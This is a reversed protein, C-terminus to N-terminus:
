LFFDWLEKLLSRLYERLKRLIGRHGFISAPTFTSKPAKALAKASVMYSSHDGVDGVKLEQRLPVYPGICQSHVKNVVIGNDQAVIFYEHHWYHIGM